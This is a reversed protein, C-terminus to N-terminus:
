ITKNNILKCNLTEFEIRENDENGFVLEIIFYNGYLRSMDKAKLKKSNKIDRFYNFNWNGFEYWPKKYDMVSKNFKNNICSIDIYGTDICDNYIRLKNGSYPTKIEQRPENDNFQSYNAIDTHKIQYLKWTIFELTKMLEYADNIMISITSDKHEEIIENNILKAFSGYYLDHKINIGNKITTRAPMQLRRTTVNSTNICCIFSNIENNEINEDKKSNLCIYLKQKTNFAFDFTYDHISIWKDIKYNFSLTINNLEKEYIRQANLREGINKNLDNSYNISLIIRNNDIDNAFRIKYPKFKNIFESITGTIDELNPTTSNAKKKKFRFITSSDNDYYIYGFDNIVYAESDQLGGHGLYSGIVEKYDVDFIDPMALQMAGGEGNQLTNDRDFMFLSHETHVLFTTGLAILNTINGKNETIDKYAEPSIIRWSNEFSEDAIPNSRIIRKNFESISTNTYNIYTKKVNNDQSGYKNQFLDISNMPQIITAHNFAFVSQAINDSIAENRISIIEPLTKFCRSEYPYNNYDIFTYYAAFPLFQGDFTKPDAGSSSGDIKFLKSSIYSYYEKTVLINYGTNLIVRNNNYVLSTNFTVFGNLGLEILIKDSAGYDYNIIKDFDFDNLYFTNTFKILIKNESLYLNNNNSILTAKYTYPYNEPTTEKKILPIGFDNLFQIPNELEIEIYSGNFENGKSFNHAAVYTASKIDYTRGQEINSNGYNYHEKINADGKKIESEDDYQASEIFDFSHEIKIKDFNLELIDKTDIDTCYFRFKYRGEKDAVGSSQLYPTHHSLDTNISPMEYGFDYRTFVGCFQKTKQFKEYTIFFGIYEGFSNIFIDKQLNNLIAINLYYIYCVGNYSYKIDPIKISGDDNTIGLSNDEDSHGQGNDEIKIGDTVEGYKNVFHIYFNYNEGPILTTNKLRTLYGDKIPNPIYNYSSPVIALKYTLKFSLKYDNGSILDFRTVDITINSYTANVWKNADNPDTLTFTKDPIITQRVGTTGYPIFWARAFGYRNTLAEDDNYSEGVNTFMYKLNLYLNTLESNFDIDEVYLEITREDNADDQITIIQSDGHDKNYKFHFLWSDLNSAGYKFSKRKIITKFSKALEAIDINKSSNENYGSLYLRNKYNTLSKVNYYNYKEFILENVDYEELSSFDLLFNINEGNSIDIDLTKFARETDKASQILGIQFKNFNNGNNNIILSITKNCTNSGSSIYDIINNGAYKINRESHSSTAPRTGQIFYNFLQVEELEDIFIPFGISYWKTYDISNIKYRVFFSYWGKYSLGNIYHYDIISPIKIEPNLSLQGDSLSLDNDKNSADDGFIGLNITKLPILDGTITDSEAIAIILQSKINYTFTGKLKGGHWVFSDYCVNYLFNDYSEIPIDNNINFQDEKCRVIELLVSGNLDIEEKYNNPAIFLVFEKNCPIVGALYKDQLLNNLLIHEKLSLETQLCSLDNSLQVNRASILARNPVDKPHKNLNLEFNINSM